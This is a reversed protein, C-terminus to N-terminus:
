VSMFSTQGLMASFAFLLCRQRSASSAASMPFAKQFLNSLWYSFVHGSLLHWWATARSNTWGWWTNRGETQSDGMRGQSGPVGKPDEEVGWVEAGRVELSLVIEEKIAPEVWKKDPWRCRILLLQAQPIIFPAEWKLLTQTSYQFCSHAEVPGRLAQPPRAHPSPNSILAPSQKFLHKAM